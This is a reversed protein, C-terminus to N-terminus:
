PAQLIIMMAGPDDDDDDGEDPPDGGDDKKRPSSPKESVDPKRLIFEITNSPHSDGLASVGKVCVRCIVVNFYQM